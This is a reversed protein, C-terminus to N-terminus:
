ILHNTKVLNIILFTNNKVTVSFTKSTKDPSRNIASQLTSKTLKFHDAADQVSNFRKGGSILNYLSPKM